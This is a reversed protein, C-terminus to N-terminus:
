KAGECVFVFAPPVNAWAIRTKTVSDFRDDLAARLRRAAPLVQSHVYQFTVMKGGPALTDLIAQFCEGQLEPSWIAWPLSSVVRDAKPHGWAELLEPLKQVYDERVEVDPFRARLAKALSAKPELSLLPNDPHLAVLQATMPGTGAGLEVVVHGPQIDASEVILRALSPGSPAVAGLTVPDRIFETLFTLTSM